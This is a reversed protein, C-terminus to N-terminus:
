QSFNFRKNSQKIIKNRQWIDNLKSNVVFYPEYRGEIIINDNPNVKISLSNGKKLTVAQCFMKGNIQIKDIFTIEDELERIVIEFINDPVIITDFGQKNSASILLERVYEQQGLKNIFFLHPCSGCM